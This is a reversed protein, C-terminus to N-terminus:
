RRPRLRTAVWRFPLLLAEVAVLWGLALWAFWRSRDHYNHFVPAAAPTMEVIRTALAFRRRIRDGEAAFVPETARLLGPWARVAAPFDIPELDDTALVARVYRRAAGRPARARLVYRMLTRAEALLRRRQGEAALAVFTDRLPPAAPPAPISAPDMPRLAMLGRVREGSVTPLFPLIATVQSLVLILRAPIPLLRVRRGLRHRALARVYAGFPMSEAAAIRTLRPPEPEDASLSLLGTCLDDVHVPYVPAGPRVIPLAPLRKSLRFLVGYLGRPPGGSVLGTRVSCEGDETLLREIEWKSRGYDTPSDAAASQSSLFIFRRVGQRRAAEILRHTGSVNLDEDAGAPRSDGALIAALHIVGDIGALMPDLDDARTLDFARATIGDASAICRKDRVAAVVDFGRSRAARVLRQGIYGSAGTILLRKPRGSTTPDM